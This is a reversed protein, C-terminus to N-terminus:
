AAAATGHPHLVASANFLRPDGTLLVTLSLGSRLQRFTPEDTLVYAHLEDAHRLAQAMGRGSVILRAAAPAHGAAAWLSREREHTGSEDGRSVFREASRAIRAFAAAADPADRVGAPDAPPGAIVFRNHAFKRYSWDPHAQLFRLETDPAHSMVFDVVGDALMQLSRGSGAAHVRVDVGSDKRYAPLLAALLGSNQLSTTTAADLTPARARGCAVALCLLAAALRKM